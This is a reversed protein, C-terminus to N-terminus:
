RPTNLGVGSGGGSGSNSLNVKLSKKGKRRKVEPEEQSGMEPAVVERVPEDIPPAPPKVEPVKVTPKSFLGGM